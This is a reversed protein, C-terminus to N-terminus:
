PVSPMTKVQIVLGEQNAIKNLSAAAAQAAAHWDVGVLAADLTRVVREFEERERQAQQEKTEESM